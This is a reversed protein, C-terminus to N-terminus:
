LTRKIKARFPLNETRGAQFWRSVFLFLAAGLMVLDRYFAKWLGAQGTLEEVSFCGCDVDLDKLIGYWLVTVFLVLLSFMLSLSGQIALIVGIGAMLELIPLGIAAVPLIPDPILDYRSLTRAFAKPAMLKSIGAYIFVLGLGFRIM